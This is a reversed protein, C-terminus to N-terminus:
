NKTWERLFGMIRSTELAGVVFSFTCLLMSITMIIWTPRQHHIPLWQTKQQWREKPKIWNGLNEGGRRVTTKSLNKPVCHTGGRICM